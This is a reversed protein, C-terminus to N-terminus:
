GHVSWSFLIAAVPLELCASKRWPFLVKDVNDVIDHFVPQGVEIILVNGEKLLEKRNCSNKVPYAM